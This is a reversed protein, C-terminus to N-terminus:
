LLNASRSATPISRAVIDRHLWVIRDCPVYENQAPKKEPPKLYPVMWSWGYIVDRLNEPKQVGRGGKDRM